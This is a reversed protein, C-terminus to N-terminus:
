GKKHNIKKIIINNNIHMFTFDLQGTEEAKFDERGVANSLLGPGGKRNVTKRWVCFHLGKSFGRAWNPPLGHLCIPFTKIKNIWNNNILLTKRASRLNTFMDPTKLVFLACAGERKELTVSVLLRDYTSVTEPM